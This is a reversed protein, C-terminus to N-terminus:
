VARNMLGTQKLLMYAGPSVGSPVSSNGGLSMSLGSVSFGSLAGPDTGYDDYYQAQQLTAKQIKDKQFATLNDFGVAQIRNYTLEDIKSSALDLLESSLTDSTAYPFM